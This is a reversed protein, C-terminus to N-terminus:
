VILTKKENTYLSTKKKLIEQNKIYM